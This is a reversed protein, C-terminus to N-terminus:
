GCAASVREALAEGADRIHAELLRCADTTDARRAAALIARHERDSRPQWALERWTAFLFRASARHLDDIASLLRPMRCPMLLARHFSRNASEWVRLEDSEEGTVIAQLAATLDAEEINALAHRLALVELVARMRTVELVGAPELLPVTVGRRPESQVLGQAELRRFAERVPVHSVKFEAAIADQRLRTGPAIQGSVIREAVVRTVHGVVGGEPTDDSVSEQM